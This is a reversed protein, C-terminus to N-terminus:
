QGAGTRGRAELELMLADMHHDFEELEMADADASDALRIHDEPTLDDIGDVLTKTPAILRERFAAMNRLLPLVIVVVAVLIHGTARVLMLMADFDGSAGVLPLLCILLLRPLMAVGIGNGLVIGVKMMKKRPM